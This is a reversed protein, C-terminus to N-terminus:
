VLSAHGEIEVEEDEEEVYRYEKSSVRSGRLVNCIFAAHVVAGCKVLSGTPVFAVLGYSLQIAATAGRARRMITAPVM